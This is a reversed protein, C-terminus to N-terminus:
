PRDGESYGAGELAKRHDFGGRYSGDLESFVAVEGHEDCPFIYVEPGTFPADVASVYVYTHGELPPDLRYVAKGASLDKVKFYKM